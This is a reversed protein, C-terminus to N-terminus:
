GSFKGGNTVFRHRETHSMKNFQERTVVNSGANNSSSAPPKGGGSVGSDKVFLQGTGSAALEQALDSITAYGDSGSGALPKSSDSSMIRINGNEDFGIRDKAMLALPELGDAIINQGALHSKLEAMANRQVLDKRQSRENNLQQEYQAKIQSIIEENNSQPEPEPTQQAAELEARLREVSKRRRMAEENSDVLKQNLDDLDAKPVVGEVPLVFRGDKETYLSAINEDVGELTELEYKISM